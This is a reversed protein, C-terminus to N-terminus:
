APIDPVKKLEEDIQESKKVQLGEWYQAARPKYKAQESKKIRPEEPQYAEM